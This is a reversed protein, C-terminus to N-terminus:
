DRCCAAAASISSRASECAVTAESCNACNPRGWCFSNREHCCRACGPSSWARSPWTPASPSAPSSFSRASRPDLISSGPDLISSKRALLASENTLIFERLAQDFERARPLRRYYDIVHAFIRDYLKSAAPDFSDNLREILDPFLARVGARAVEQDEDSAIEC